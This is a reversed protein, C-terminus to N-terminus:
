TFRERQLNEKRSFKGGNAFSYHFYHENVDNDPIKLKKM